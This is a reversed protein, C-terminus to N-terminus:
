EVLHKVRAELRDVDLRLDDVNRFFDELAEQPPFWPKEEHIYENMNQTLSNKAQKGWNFLGKTFRSLKHAPLDGLAQALHEEWDIDVQDFLQTIQQGLEADGEITVDSAFFGRKKDGRLALSLLNLPTGRIKMEAALNQGPSLELGKELFTLQFLSNLVALEVTIIKGKLPALHKQFEPDLALYRNLANEVQELLFSKVM